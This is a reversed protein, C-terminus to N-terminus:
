VCSKMAAEIAKRSNKLPFTQASFRPDGGPPLRLIAEIQQGHLIAELVAPDVLLMYSLTGDPLLQLGSFSRGFDGRTAEQITQGDVKLTVGELSENLRTVEEATPVPDGMRYLLVPVREPYQSDCYVSASGDGEVRAIIAVLGNGYPLARWVSSTAEVPVQRGPAAAPIEAPEITAPESDGPMAPEDSPAAAPEPDESPKPQLAAIQRRYKAALCPSAREIAASDFPGSSPVDCDATLRGLWRGMNRRMREAEASGVAALRQRYLASMEGELDGLEANACLAQEIPLTAEACDFSPAAKPAGPALLLATM